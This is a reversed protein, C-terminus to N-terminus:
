KGTLFSMQLHVMNMNKGLVISIPHVSQIYERKEGIGAQFLILPFYFKPTNVNKAGVQFLILPLYGFEM